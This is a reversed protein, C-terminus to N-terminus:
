HRFRKQVSEGGALAKEMLVVKHKGQSIELAELLPLTPTTLTDTLQQLVWHLDEMAAIFDAQVLESSKVWWSLSMLFLFMGYKGGKMLKGWQAPSLPKCPLPWLTTSCDPPQCKIWWSTWTRAYTATDSIVPHPGASDKLWNDVKTPQQKQPLCTTQMTILLPFLSPVSPGSISKSPSTNEFKLYMQVTDSWWEVNTDGSLHTLIATTIFKPYHDASVEMLAQSAKAQFISPQAGSITQLGQITKNISTFM